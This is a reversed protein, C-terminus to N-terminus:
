NQEEEEDDKDKKALLIFLLLLMLALLAFVILIYNNEKPIDPEDVEEITIDLEITTIDESDSSSVNILYSGPSIWKHYTSFLEGSVKFDSESVNGDGWDIIYKIYDSDNDNSVITFKYIINVVGETPGTVNPKTPPFNSKNILAKTEYTDSKGLPDWVTLRVIYEGESSFNHTVIEGLSTNGEGFDWLYKAIYQDPDYSKSGDFVIDEKEMGIYPEGASADAVPKYNYNQGGNGQKKPPPGSSKTKTSKGSEPDSFDGQNGSTDVARVKYIYIQNVNLNTDRYDTKTTNKISVNDRFIEYYDVAVNDKAPAWSLDLKGDKVDDVTLNKVKTPPETDTSINSVNDSFLGPNGSTDVAKVKYTYLRGIDLGSDTTKNDFVKTLYSGDRFIVYHSVSINDTAHDWSLNLKGNFANEVTLNMVQSPPEQDNPDLYNPIGDGDIDGTGEDKDLLGDGDSDTDLHNPIGDNDIDHGHTNGDQREKLTPITDNDDDSDLYNSKGDNDTDDNMPDGDGDVDEDSTNVSDGDDDKDLWNSLCDNDTDDDYPNGNNNLDENINIVGDGDADGNPDILRHEILQTQINQGPDGIIAILDFYTPCYSGGGYLTANEVMSWGYSNLGDNGYDLIYWIAKQVQWWDTGQKNNIIYNVKSWNQHFLNNPMSNNLSFYLYTNNYDNGPQISTTKNGCWGVYTGNSIDFGFPVNKLTSDFYSQSGKHKLNITIPDHPLNVNLSASTIGCLSFVLLVAFGVIVLKRIM